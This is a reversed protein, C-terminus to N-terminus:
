VPVGFIEQGIIDERLILKGKACKLITYYEAAPEPGYIVDKFGYQQLRLVVDKSVCPSLHFDGKHLQRGYLTNRWFDKLGNYNALFYKACIEFEPYALVLQGDPILVRHFEEFLRGWKKMEIHEINHLCYVADVSNDKYPFDEKLIDLILDPKVKFKNDEGIDIECDVLDINIFGEFHKEGCGYNLKM